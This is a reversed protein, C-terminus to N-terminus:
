CTANFAQHFIAQGKPLKGQFSLMLFNEQPVGEHVLDPISRFGFREYFHPDGALVCGQAALRRLRRLGDKMLLTGIGQRQYAPLVALPGLGYWDSSGDSILVPSFAIHGAIKGDVEAVLSITLARAARLAKVIFQETHRSIPHHEFAAEIVASIAETDAKREERVIAAIKRFNQEPM